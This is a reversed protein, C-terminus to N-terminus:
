FSSKDENKKKTKWWGCILYLLGVFPIPVFILNLPIGGIVIAFFAFGALILLGGINDWKLAVILGVIMILIAGFFLHNHIPWALPNPFHEGGTSIAAILAIAIIPALILTGLIRATWRIATVLFAM